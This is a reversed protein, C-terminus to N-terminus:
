KTKDMSAAYFEGDENVLIDKPAWFIEEKDREDNGWSKIMLIMKKSEM